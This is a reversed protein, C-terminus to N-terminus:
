SIDIPEDVFITYTRPRGREADAPNVYMISTRGRIERPLIAV